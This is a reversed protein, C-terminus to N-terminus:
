KMGAKVIALAETFSMTPKFGQWARVIEMATPREREAKTKADHCKKCWGQLFRSPVFMRELFGPSRVNGCPEIHDVYIKPVPKGAQACKENECYQFGDERTCRKVVLRHMTSWSWAKRILTRLRKEDRPGFGDLPVDTARKVRRELIKLERKLNRIVRVIRQRAKKQEATEKPM